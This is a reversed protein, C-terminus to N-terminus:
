VPHFLTGCMSLVSLLSINAFTVLVSHSTFNSSTDAPKTSIRQSARLHNVHDSWMEGLPLNTMRQSASVVTLSVVLNSTELELTGILTGYYSHGQIASNRGTNRLYLSINTLFQLNYGVWGLKADGNPTVGNSNRRSRQCWFVLIWSYRVVNKPRSKSLTPRIFVTEFTPRDTDVYTSHTRVDTWGCFTEEIEVFNPM